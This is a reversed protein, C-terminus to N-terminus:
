LLKMPQQKSGLCKKGSGNSHDEIYFNETEEHLVQKLFSPVEKPLPDPKKVIVAFTKFCCSCVGMQREQDM